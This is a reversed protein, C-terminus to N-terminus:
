AKLSSVYEDVHRLKASEDSSARRSEALRENSSNKRSAVLDNCACPSINGSKRCKCFSACPSDTKINGGGLGFDIRNDPFDEFLSWDINKHIVSSVDFSSYRLFSPIFVDCEVRLLSIM